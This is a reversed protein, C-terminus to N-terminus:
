DGPRVEVVSVGEPVAAESGPTVFVRDGNSFIALKGKATFQRLSELSQADVAPEPPKDLPLVAFNTGREFVFGNFSRQRFIVYWGEGNQIISKTEAYM